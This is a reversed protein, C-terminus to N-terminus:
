IVKGIRFQSLEQTTIPQSDVSTMDQSNDPSESGLATHMKWLEAQLRQQEAQANDREGRLQTLATQSGTEFDGWALALEQAIVPIAEMDAAENLRAIIEQM